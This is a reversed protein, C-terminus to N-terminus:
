FTAKPNLIQESSYFKLKMVTLVFIEEVLTLHEHFDRIPNLVAEILHYIQNETKSILSSAPGPLPRQNITTQFLVLRPLNMWM